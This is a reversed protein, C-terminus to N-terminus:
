GLKRNGLVVIISDGVRGQYYASPKDLRDVTNRVAAPMNTTTVPQLCTQIEKSAELAQVATERCASTFPVDVLFATLCCRFYGVILRRARQM